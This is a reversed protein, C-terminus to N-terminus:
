LVPNAIASINAFRTCLVGANLEPSIARLTKM